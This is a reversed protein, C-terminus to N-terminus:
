WIGKNIPAPTSTTGPKSLLQPFIRVISLGLIVAIVGGIFMGWKFKVNPSLNNWFIIPNRTPPLSVVTPAITSLTLSKIADLAERATPYRERYDYRVMKELIEALKASVLVQNKWMVQGTNPDTPLQNPLIGTLAQIGVMGVAYIDSSLQPNGKEQEIPMYGETGIPITLNIQGQSQYTPNRIAKVAGFDIIAIKGDSKRRILNSPKIDRHIIKREHIYTLVELIDYLLKMVVDERLQVGRNVGQSVATAPLLEQILDHGDIFEQVLYFEQNEEFHAFLQPIFEYNGLQYLVQTETDFLRRSIQLTAPDNSPPCLKKVVRVPRDPLHTDEALYTQSFGGKALIGTIRYHGGIIQGIMM